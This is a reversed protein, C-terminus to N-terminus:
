VRIRHDEGSAVLCVGGVLQPSRESHFGSTWFGASSYAVGRRDKERREGKTRQKQEWSDAHRPPTV